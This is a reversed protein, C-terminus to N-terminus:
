TRWSQRGAVRITVPMRKISNGESSLYIFAQWKLPERVNQTAVFVHGPFPEPLDPSLSGLVQWREGPDQSELFRDINEPSVGAVEHLADPTFFFHMRDGLLLATYGPKWALDLRTQFSSSLFLVM